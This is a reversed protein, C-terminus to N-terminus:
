DRQRLESVSRRLSVIVRSHQGAQSFELSCVRRAASGYVLNVYHVAASSSHLISLPVAEKIALMMMFPARCHPYRMQPKHRIDPKHRIPPDFGRCSSSREDAYTRSSSRSRLNGVTSHRPMPSRPNWLSDYLSGKRRKQIADTGTLSRRRNGALDYLAL